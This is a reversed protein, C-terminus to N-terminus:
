RGARLQALTPPAISWVDSWLSVSIPQRLEPKPKEQPAPKVTEGILARRKLRLRIGRRRVTEEHRGMMVAIDKVVYREWQTRIFEDEEPSFKTM